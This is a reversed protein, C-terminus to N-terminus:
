LRCLLRLRQVLSASCRKVSSSQLSFWDTASTAALISARQQWSIDVTVEWDDHQRKREPVDMRLSKAVGAYGTSWDANLKGALGNECM